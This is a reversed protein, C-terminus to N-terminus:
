WRPEQVEGETIGRATEYTTLISRGEGLTEGKKFHRRYLGNGKGGRVGKDALSPRRSYNEKFCYKGL